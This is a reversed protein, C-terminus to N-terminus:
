AQFSYINSSIATLSLLHFLKIIPRAHAESIAGLKMRSVKRKQSVSAAQLPFRNLHALHQLGNKDTSYKGTSPPRDSPRRCPCNSLSRPFPVPVKLPRRSPMGDTLHNEHCPVASRSRSQRDETLASLSILIAGRHGRIPGPISRASSRLSSQAGELM